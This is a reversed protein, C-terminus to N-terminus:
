FVTTKLDAIMQKLRDALPGEQVKDDVVYDSILKKDTVIEKVRLKDM